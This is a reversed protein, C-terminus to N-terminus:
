SEGIQFRSFRKISINEGIKAILENLLDAVTKEPERVYPQDLLCNDKFFKGMKGDVIKDVVNEPKGMELAQAKYIEREKDILEQPVEEARVGLPNTAAIHMAINKAFAKFDDNKAVFDTECNIEVLVGLKGGLHIYSEVIGESLARGARKQATALGKKRLFEVAKEMDGDCEVLAKKCDMMGAGSKERLEKVMAASITAM